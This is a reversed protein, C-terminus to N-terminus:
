LRQIPNPFMSIQCCITSILAKRVLCLCSQRRLSSFCSEFNQTTALNNLNMPGCQRIKLLDQKLAREYFLLFASSNSFFLCFRTDQTWGFMAIGLYLRFVLSIFYSSWWNQEFQFHAGFSLCDCVKIIFGVTPWSRLHFTKEIKSVRLLLKQYNNKYFETLESLM